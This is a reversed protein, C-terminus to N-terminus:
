ILLLSPAGTDTTEKRTQLLQSAQSLRQKESPASRRRQDHHDMAEGQTKSRTTRLYSMAIPTCPQLNCRIVRTPHIFASASTWTKGLRGKEQMTCLALPGLNWSETCQQHFMSGSDPTVSDAAALPDNARCKPFVLIWCRIGLTRSFLTSCQSHSITSDSRVETDWLGRPERSCLWPIPGMAGCGWPSLTCAPFILSRGIILVVSDHFVYQVLENLENRPTVHSM